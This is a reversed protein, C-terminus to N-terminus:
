LTGEKVPKNLSKQARTPVKDAMIASTALGDISLFEIILTEGQVVHTKGVQGHCISSGVCIPDLKEDASGLHLPQIACMTKPLAFSTVFITSAMSCKPDLFPLVLLSIVM